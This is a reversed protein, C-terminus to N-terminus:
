TTRITLDIANFAVACAAATFLHWVGHGWRALPFKKHTDLKWSTFGVAFLGLSLLVQPLPSWTQAIAMRIVLQAYTAGLLIAIVWEMNRTHSKSLFFAAAGASLFMGAPVLPDAGQGVLAAFAYVATGAFVTYIGTVDLMGAWGTSTAHFLTSGVCLYMMTLAFVFAPGTDLTFQIWLGAALYALNTYTNVPQQPVKKLGLSCQELEAEHWGGSCPKYDSAVKAPELYRFLAIFILTAFVVASATIILVSTM